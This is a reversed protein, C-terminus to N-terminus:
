HLDGHLMGAGDDTSRVIVTLAAVMRLASPTREIAQHTAHNTRQISSLAMM